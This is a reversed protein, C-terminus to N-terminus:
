LKIKDIYSQSTKFFLLPSFISKYKLLIFAFNIFENKNSFLFYMEFM